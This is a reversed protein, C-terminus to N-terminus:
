RKFDYWQKDAEAQNRGKLLEWTSWPHLVFHWDGLRDFKRCSTKIYARFLVVFRRADKAGHAKLRKAFDIDEVSSLEEDFGGIARFDGTRCFFLGGSIGYRVAIPLLLLATFLIGASFREPIIAVGGGVISPNNLARQVAALMNPSMQSDADITIIWQGSAARAGANRIMSLNKADEEVIRCGLELAVERTRDTCRNLVVITEISSTIHSAANRISAICRPLSQEENRAPIIISIDPTTHPTM